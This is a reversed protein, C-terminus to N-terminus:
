RASTAASSAPLYYIEPVLPIRGSPFLGALQSRYGRILEEKGALGRTWSRATLGHRALFRPDPRSRQNYPFDAYYVVSGAFREGVARVILHDVHRGVGVPCFVARAGSSRMREAVADGLSAILAHDARSIRGLAVDFRYTPYRHWLEPPVWGAYRSLLPGAARRRFLADPYGLHELAAGLGGCVQEDEARRVAFLTAADPTACSRLFSRAAYTHPPPSGTTFVTLVTVATTAALTRLLAGCSLVADDPHPSLFLVPSGAVDTLDALAM